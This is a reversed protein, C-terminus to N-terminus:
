PADRDKPPGVIVGQRDGDKGSGMKGSGDKGSGM